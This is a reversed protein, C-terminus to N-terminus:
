YATGVNRLMSSMIKRVVKGVNGLMYKGLKRVHEEWIKYCKKTGKRVQEGMNGLM